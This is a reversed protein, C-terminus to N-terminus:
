KPVEKIGNKIFASIEEGYKAWLESSNPVDPPPPPLPTPPPAILAILQAPLPFSRHNPNKRYKSIAGLIEDESFESLDAAMMQLVAESLDRNYYDALVVLWQKVKKM